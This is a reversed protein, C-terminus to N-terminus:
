PYFDLPCFTLGLSLFVFDQLSCLHSSVLSDRAAGAAFTLHLFGPTWLTPAPSSPTLALGPGGSASSRARHGKRLGPGM